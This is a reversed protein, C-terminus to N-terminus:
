AAMAIDDFGVVSLQEPISIGHAYVYNLVGFAMLDNFAFIASPPNPKNFWTEAAAYGAPPLYDAGGIVLEPDIAIGNERLIEEAGHLGAQIAGLPSNGVILGISRHGLAILHRMADKAGGYNNSTVLDASIDSLPRDAVVIPYGEDLMRQLQPGLGAPSVVIFGAVRHEFLTTIYSEDKDPREDTNCLVVTYGRDFCLDEVGKAVEAFFPNSSDPILMGLTISENTRLNRAVANPRYGTESVAARVRQELGESVFGTDNLVRSVTAISVGAHKAVDRITPM